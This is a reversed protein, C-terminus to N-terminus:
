LFLLLRQQGSAPGQKNSSLDQVLLELWSHFHQGRRSRGRQTNIQAYSAWGLSRWSPIPLMTIASTFLSETTLLFRPRLLEGCVTSPMEGLILTSDVWLLFSGRLVTRVAKHRRLESLQVSERIIKYICQSGTIGWANEDTISVVSFSSLRWNKMFYTKWCLFFNGLM